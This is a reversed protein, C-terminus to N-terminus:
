MKGKLTVFMIDFHRMKDDPIQIYLILVIMVCGDITQWKMIM